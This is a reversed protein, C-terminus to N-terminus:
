VSSKSLSPWQFPPFSAQIPGNGWARTDWTYGFKEADERPPPTFTVSKKFYPLLGDWGWGPNGLQEWADYDEKAGRDFVMGNVASSGGVIAGISYRYVLNNIEPQPVSSINFRHKACAPNPTSISSSPM